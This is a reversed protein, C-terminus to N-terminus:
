LNVNTLTTLPPSFIVNKHKKHEPKNGSMNFLNRPGLLDQTAALLTKLESCVKNVRKNAPSFNHKGINNIYNVRMFIVFRLQLDNHRVKLASQKKKIVVTANRDLKVPRFIKPIMQEPYKKEEKKGGIGSLLSKSQFVSHSFNTQNM